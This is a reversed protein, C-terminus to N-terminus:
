DGEEVARDLRAKAIRLDILANVLNVRANNLATQDTLVDVNIAAGARYQERRVRYSEEAASLGARSADLADRATVLGNYATSVENRLADQTSRLDAKVQKLDAEAQDIAQFGKLTNNPSWVLSAFLTWSSNWERVESFFRSNPRMYETTGGVTVVPLASGRAAGIAYKKSDELIRLAKIESRRELAKHYVASEDQDVWPLEDELNEAITLDNEEGELHLLTYLATRATRVALERRTLDVKASAVNAQARVLEVRAVSGAAVLSESDKRQAEAQVLASKAVMLAARTRAYNYYAERV